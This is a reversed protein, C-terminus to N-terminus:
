DKTSAITNADEVIKGDILHITRDTQHALHEDHTILVLATKQQNVMDFMLDTIIQGNGSDLNGTPEDALIISPRMILARALAVRQQEGGSLQTPMHHIRDKLGLKELWAIAEEHANDSGTLELPFAVNQLANLSPILHFNQFVIGIHKQRFVALSDEDMKHLANGKFYLHGKDPLMLGALIMMLTTKGSGSPGIIAIKEGEKITFSIDSLIKVRNSKLGLELSIGNIDMLTQSDAM